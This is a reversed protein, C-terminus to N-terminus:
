GVSVMRGRSLPRTVDVSVRVRMFSGGNMEMESKRIITGVISCIGEAVKSNMFRVPIDHVQVWFATGSFKLDEIPMDKDYHQLVLLQKDFSWPENSLITDVEHKNDFTFLVIHNGMNKVKFGNKSRWLPMFTLAIAEMNLARRTYFKGAIIFELTALEEELDFTPGERDSISLGKCHNTLDDM